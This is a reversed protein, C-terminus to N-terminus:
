WVFLVSNNYNLLIV